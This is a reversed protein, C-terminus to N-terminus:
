KTIALMAIQHLYNAKHIWIKLMSVSKCEHAAKICLDRKRLLETSDM